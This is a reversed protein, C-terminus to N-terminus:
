LQHRREARAAVSRGSVTDVKERTDPSQVDAKARPLKAPGESAPTM